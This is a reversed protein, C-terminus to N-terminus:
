DELTVSEIDAHEDICSLVTGGDPCDLVSNALKAGKRNIRFSVTFIETRNTAARTGLKHKATWVGISGLAVM